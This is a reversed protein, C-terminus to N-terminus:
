NNGSIIAPLFMTWPFKAEVVQEFCGINTIANSDNDGDQQRDQGALDKDLIYPASNLGADICQSRTTLYYLTNNNTSFLPNVHLNHTFTPPVGNIGIDGYNSYHIDLSSGASADSNVINNTIDRVGQPSESHNNYIISNYIFVNSAGWIMNDSTELVMGGGNGDTSFPEKYVRNGTITNNVIYVEGSVLSIDLGGGIGYYTNSTGASNNYVLNNVLRTEDSAIIGCGGGDGSESDGGDMYGTTRNNRIINNALIISGGTEAVWDGCAVACGGGFAQVENNKMIIHNLEITGPPVTFAYIGGGVEAQGNKVTIGEVKISGTVTSTEYDNFKLVCGANEGDLITIAPDDTRSSFDDNWGGQIEIDGNEAAPSYVFVGNYIGTELYITDDVGGNGAATDLATQLDTPDNISGDGGGTSSVYINEGLVPAVWFLVNSLLWM